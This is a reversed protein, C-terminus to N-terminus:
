DAFQYYYAPRPISEVPTSDFYLYKQFEMGVENLPIVDTDYSFTHAVGDTFTVTFSFGALFTDNMSDVDFNNWRAHRTQRGPDLGLGPPAETVGDLSWVHRSFDIDPGNDPICNEICILDGHLGFMTRYTSEINSPLGTPEDIRFERIAVGGEQAINKIRVIFRECCDGRYREFRIEFAHDSPLSAHLGELADLRLGELTGGLNTLRVIRVHDEAGFEITFHKVSEFDEEFPFEYDVRGDATDFVGVVQFNAGDSSTEVQVQASDTAGLGGVFASVLLDGQGPINRLETPFVFMTSEGPDFVDTNNGGFGLGLDNVFRYDPRGLAVSASGTSSGLADRAAIPYSALNWSRRDRLPPSSGQAMAGAQEGLLCLLIPVTALWRARVRM